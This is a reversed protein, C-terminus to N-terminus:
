KSIINRKTVGYALFYQAYPIKTRYLTALTHIKNKTRYGIKQNPKILKNKIAYILLMLM